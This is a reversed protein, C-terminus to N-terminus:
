NKHVRLVLTKIVRVTSLLVQHSHLIHLDVMGVYGLEESGKITPPVM